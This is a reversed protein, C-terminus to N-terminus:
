SEKSERRAAIEAQKKDVDKEVNLFALIVILIIAIFVLSVLFVGVFKKLLYFVIKM